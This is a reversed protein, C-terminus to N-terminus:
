EKDLDTYYSNAILQIAEFSTIVGREYHNLVAGIYSKRWESCSHNKIEDNAFERVYRKM